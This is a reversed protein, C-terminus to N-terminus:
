EEPQNFVLWAESEAQVTGTSVGLDVKDRHM